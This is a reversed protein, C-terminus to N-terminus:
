EGIHLSFWIEKKSVVYNGKVLSGQQPIPPIAIRRLCECPKLPRYQCQDCGFQDAFQVLISSADDSSLTSDDKGVYIRDRIKRKAEALCSSCPLHGIGGKSGGCKTCDTRHVDIEMGFDSTSVRVSNNLRRGAELGLAAVVANVPLTTEQPVLLGDLFLEVNVLQTLYEGFHEKAQRKANEIFNKPRCNSQGQSIFFGIDEFADREERTTARALAWQLRTLSASREQVGLLELCLTPDGQRRYDLIARKMRERNWSM